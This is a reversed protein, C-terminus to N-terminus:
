FLGFIEARRSGNKNEKKVEKNKKENKLKKWEKMKTKKKKM